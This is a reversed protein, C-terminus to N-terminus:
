ESQRKKEREIEREREKECWTAIPHRREFGEEEKRSELRSNLSACLRYAKFVLGGQFRQV